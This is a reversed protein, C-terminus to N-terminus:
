GSAIASAARKTPGVVFLIGALLVFLSGVLALLNGGVGFVVWAIVATVVLLVGSTLPQASWDHRALWAFFIALGGVVLLLVAETAANVAGLPRGLVLDVTGVALAVLAGLAILVGGLLGFGFGLRQETLEAM